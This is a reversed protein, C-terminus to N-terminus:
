EKLLQKSEDRGPDKMGCNHFKLIFRNRILHVNGRVTNLRPQRVTLDCTPGPQIDVDGVANQESPGKITELILDGFCSNLHSVM